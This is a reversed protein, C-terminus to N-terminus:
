LGLAAAASPHLDVTTVYFDEGGRIRNCADAYLEAQDADDFAAAVRTDEYDHKVVLHVNTPAPM